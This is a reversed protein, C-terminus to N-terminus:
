AMNWFSRDGFYPKWHIYPMAWRHTCNFHIMWPKHQIPKRLLSQQNHMHAVNLSTAHSNSFPKKNNDSLQVPGPNLENDYILKITPQFTVVLNCYYSLRISLCSVIITPVDNVAEFKFHHKCWLCLGQRSVQNASLSLSRLQKDKHELGLAVKFFEFNSSKSHLVFLIQHLVFIATRGGHDRM